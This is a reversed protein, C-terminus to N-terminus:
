IHILSLIPPAGATDRFEKSTAIEIPDHNLLDTLLDQWDYNGARVGANSIGRDEAPRHEFNYSTSWSGRKPVLAWKLTQEHEGKYPDVDVEWRGQVREITVTTDEPVEFTERVFQVYTEIPVWPAGLAVDVDTKRPPVVATLADVNARYRPDLAAVEEAEALKRRM